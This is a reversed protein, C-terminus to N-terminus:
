AMFIQVHLINHCTCYQNIISSWHFEKHFKTEPDTTPVEDAADYSGVIKILLFNFLYKLFCLTPWTIISRTDFHYKKFLRGIICKRYFNFPLLIMSEPILYLISWFNKYVRRETILYATSQLEMDMSYHRKIELYLSRYM